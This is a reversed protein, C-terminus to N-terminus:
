HIFGATRSLLIGAATLSVMVVDLMPHHIIFDESYVVARHVFRLHRITFISGAVATILVLLTFAGPLANGAFLDLRAVQRAPLDNGSLSPAVGAAKDPQGYLAVVITQAAAGQYHATKVIGFGVNQYASNLLNARHESSNMWGRVVDASNSFGYALNEGAARYQYGSQDIFSWPTVGSPSIHSWYDNTAMAQAKAQAAASLQPDITLDDTAQESRDRNTDFLLADQTIGVSLGLVAGSSNGYHQPLSVWLINAVIAIGAIALLPLYPWYTREYPKTHKHHSGQRKQHHVPLSKQKKSILVM